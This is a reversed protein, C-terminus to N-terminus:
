NQYKTLMGKFDTTIEDIAESTYTTVLTLETFQEINESLSKLTILIDEFAEAQKKTAVAIQEASTDSVEASTLIIDFVKNLKNSSEWGSQIKEASEESVVVIHDVMGQAEFLHKKIGSTANMISDSLRRIEMAVIVFNKGAEGAAAAELEANFAIMKTQSAIGNIQRIIGSIGDIKETLERVNLVNNEGNSKIQRMKELNQSIINCGSSVDEKTQTAIKSVEQIKQNIRKAVLIAEEMTDIIKKLGESQQISISSLNKSSTIVSSSIKSLFDATDKVKFILNKLELAFQNFYGSILGIEDESQIKLEHHLKGQNMETMSRQILGLNKLMHYIFSQNMLLIVLFGIGSLPLIFALLDKKLSVLEKNAASQITQLDDLYLHIGIFWNLPGFLEAKALIKREESKSTRMDYKIRADNDFANFHLEEFFLQGKADELNKIGEPFYYQPFKEQPLLPHYILSKNPSSITVFGEKEPDMGQILEQFEKIVRNNIYDVAYTSGIIWNWDAFSKVFNLHLISSATHDRVKKAPLRTIYTAEAIESQQLLNQAQKYVFNGELDVINELAGKQFLDPNDQPNYPDDLVLALDTRIIWTDTNAGQEIAKIASIASNQADELSLQGLKHKEAYFQLIKYIINANNRVISEYKQRIYESNTQRYYTQEFLKYILKKKESLINEKNIFLHEQTHQNM